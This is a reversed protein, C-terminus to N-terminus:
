SNIHKIFKSTCENLYNFDCHECLSAYNVSGRANRRCEVMKPHANYKRNCDDIPYSSNM